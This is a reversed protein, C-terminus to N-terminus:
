SLVPQMEGAYKQGELDKIEAASKWADNRKLTTNKILLNVCALYGETTFTNLM